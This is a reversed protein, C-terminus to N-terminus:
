DISSRRANLWASEEDFFAQERGSREHLRSDAPGTDVPDDFGNIVHARTRRMPGDPGYVEGSSDEPFKRERM